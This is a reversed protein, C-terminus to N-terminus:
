KRRGRAEAVLEVVEDTDGFHAVIWGCKRLEGVRQRKTRKRGVDDLGPECEEIVQDCTTVCHAQHHVVSGPEVHAGLPPSVLQPAAADVLHEIKVRGIATKPVELANAHDVPRGVARLHEFLLRCAVVHGDVIERDDVARGLRDESRRALPCGGLIQGVLLLRLLLELLEGRLDRNAPEGGEATDLVGTRRRLVLGLLRQSHGACAPLTTQALQGAEASSGSPVGLTSCGGAVAVAGLHQAWRATVM